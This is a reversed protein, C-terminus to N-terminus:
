PSPTILKHGDYSNCMLLFTSLPHKSIDRLWWLSREIQNPPPPAFVGSFHRAERSVYM